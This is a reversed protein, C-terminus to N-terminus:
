FWAPSRFIFMELTHFKYEFQESLQILLFFDKFRWSSDTKKKKKRAEKLNNVTLNWCLWSTKLGFTTSLTKVHPFLWAQVCVCMCVCARWPWESKSEKEKREEVSVHLLEFYGACRSHTVCAQVAAAEPMHLIKVETDGRILKFLRYCSGQTVSRCCKM